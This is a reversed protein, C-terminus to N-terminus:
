KFYYGFKGKDTRTEVTKIGPFTLQPLVTGNSNGKIITSTRSSKYDSNVSFTGAGIVSQTLSFFSFDRNFQWVVSFLTGQVYKTRASVGNYLLNNVKRSIMTTSTTDSFRMETMNGVADTTRITSTGVVTVVPNQTLNDTSRFGLAKTSTNFYITLEPFVSDVQQIAFSHESEVNGVSDVSRYYLTTPVSLQISVTKTATVWSGNSGLRYESYHVGVGADTALLKLSTSAGFWDSSVPVKGNLYLTTSPPTIDSAAIGTLVLAAVLTTTNGKGSASFKVTPITSSSFSASNLLFTGQSDPTVQVTNFYAATVLTSDETKALRLHFSGTATADLNVRYIGSSEPLFVFKNHDIEEYMAGPINMEVSSSPGPGIHNGMGDYVHLDVPSHVSVIDGNVKCTTSSSLVRSPLTSFDPHASIINRILNQIDSNSSLNQHVADKVFFKNSTSAVIGDSSLLPVTGDGAVIGLYYEDEVSGKNRRIIQGITPINCGSINFVTTGPPPTFIDLATSHFSDADSLLSSNLGLTQLMTKTESFNRIKGDVLDYFYGGYKDMAMYVRTPLLQYLSLMNHGIKKIEQPNLFSFIKEIGLNDGFLLAKAAKPAGWHPTGLFVVKGIPNNPNDVMYQKVVLGGMSHAIVDVHM